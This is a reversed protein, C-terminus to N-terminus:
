RKRRRRERAAGCFPSAWLREERAPPRSPCRPRWQLRLLRQLRPRRHRPPYSLCPRVLWAAFVLETPTPCATSAARRYGHREDSPRPACAVGASQPACPRPPPPPRRRREHHLCAPLPPHPLAWTRSTIAASLRIASCVSSPALAQALDRPSRIAVIHPRHRAELHHVALGCRSARHPTPSTRSKHGMVMSIGADSRSSGPLFLRQMSGTGARVAM